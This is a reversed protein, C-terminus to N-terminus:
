KQLGEILSMEQRAIDNWSYRSAIKLADTSINNRLESDRLLDLINEAIEKFNGISVTIMGGTFVKKYVPLNWAVVPLGCAMAELVAIGFGEEHSPFVFIQSSRLIAFAEVDGLYGFVEVNKELKNKIIENKLKQELQNNSGGIIALTANPKKATVDRWIKVLDFIGKSVSLRGLFVGDYQKTSPQFSRAKEVDVGNYNVFVKKRDFGMNSLQQKVIPNVVFVLDASRKVLAFSLRQSLFGVLNAIYSRGVRTSPSQYVHHIIQVWKVKRSKLKLVYAPLVDPLFDSTSYLVDENRIEMKLLLAKVIRKFYTIFFNMSRTEKTTLIYIANLKKMECIKRGIFPTIIVKDFDKVRKLVEM